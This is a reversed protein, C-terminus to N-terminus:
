HLRVFFLYSFDCHNGPFIQFSFLRQQLFAPHGIDSHLINACFFHADLTNRCHFLANLLYCPHRDGLGPLQYHPSQTVTITRSGQVPQRNGRRVRVILQNRQIQKRCRRYLVYRHAFHIRRISKGIIRTGM